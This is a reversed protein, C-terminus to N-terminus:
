FLVSSYAPYDFVVFNLWLFLACAAYFLPAIFVRNPAKFVLLFSAFIIPGGVTLVTGGRSAFIAMDNFLFRWMVGACYFVFFIDFCGIREKLYNRFKMALLCMMMNMMMTPRFVGLV